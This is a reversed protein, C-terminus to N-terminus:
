CYVVDMGLVTQLEQFRSMYSEKSLHVHEAETLFRISKNEFVGNRMLIREFPKMNDGYILLLKHEDLQIEMPVQPNLVAIGVCGDETLIDEYDYLNSKLVPLDMLERYLDTHSMDDRKHSTELVVDVTEGLPTMLELFTEFLIEKSISAMLVPVVTGMEPDRYMDHRYGQQPVIKLDYSPRVADTLYFEGYRSVALHAELEQRPIQAFNRADCSSPNGRFVNRFFRKLFGM